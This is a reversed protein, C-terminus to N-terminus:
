KEIEGLKKFIAKAEKKLGLLTIVPIDAESEIGNLQMYMLISEKQFDELTDLKVTQM